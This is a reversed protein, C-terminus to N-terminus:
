DVESSNRAPRTTNYTYLGCVLIACGLLFFPSLTTGGEPLYPLPLSLVYVSIPVAFVM